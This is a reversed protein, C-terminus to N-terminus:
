LHVFVGLCEYVQLAALCVTKQRERREDMMQGKGESVPRSIRSSHSVLAGPCELDEAGKVSSDVALPPFKRQWDARGKWENKQGCRGWYHPHGAFLISLILSPFKWFPALAFLGLTSHQFVSTQVPRVWIIWDSDSVVTLFFRPNPSSMQQITWEAQIVHTM